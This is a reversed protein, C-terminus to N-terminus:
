LSITYAQKLIAKLINKVEIEIRRQSSKTKTVLIIEEKLKKM